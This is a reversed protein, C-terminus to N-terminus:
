PSLGLLSHFREFPIERLWSILSECLKELTIYFNSRTINDRMYHWLREILNLHPSYTPLPVLCFRDRNDLLFDDLEPTVHQSANDRVVFVFDDPCMDLLHQWHSRVQLNTKHDYIEYLGSGTPYGLSGLIYWTENQGPTNVKYEEGMVRYVRGTQPCWSVNAEDFYFLEGRLKPILIHPHGIRTLQEDPVILKVADSTL